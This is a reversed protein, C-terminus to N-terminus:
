LFRGPGLVAEFDKVDDEDEKKKTNKLLVSSLLCHAICARRRHPLLSIEFRSLSLVFDERVSIIVCEFYRVYEYNICVICACGPIRVEMSVCGQSCGGTETSRMILNKQMECIELYFRNGIMRLAIISPLNSRLNTNSQFVEFLLPFSM